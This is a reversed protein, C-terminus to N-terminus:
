KKEMGENWEEEMGKVMSELEEIEIRLREKERKKGEIEMQNSNKENIRRQIAEYKGKLTYYESVV